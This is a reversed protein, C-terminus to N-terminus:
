GGVYSWEAGVRPRPLSLRRHSLSRRLMSRRNSSRVPSPGRLSCRSGTPQPTRPAPDVRSLERSRLRARRRGEQSRRRPPQSRPRPRHSGWSSSINPVLRPDRPVHTQSCGCRPKPHKAASGPGPQFEFLAPGRPTRAWTASRRYGVPPPLGGTSHCITPSSRPERGVRVRNPPTLYPSRPYARFVFDPTGECKLSSRGVEPARPARIRHRPVIPSRAVSAVALQSGRDFLPDRRARVGKRSGAPLALM